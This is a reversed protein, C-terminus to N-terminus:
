KLAGKVITGISRGAAGEIAPRAMIIVGGILLAGGLVVQAVRVWNHRNAVWAGTKGALNVASQAADVGPLQSVAGQVTDGASSVAGRVDVLAVAATATPMYLLYKGNGKAAFPKWGSSKWLSYAASAQSDADAGVGWALGWLGGAYATDGGSTALAVATAVILDVGRWGAKSASTAVALPILKM